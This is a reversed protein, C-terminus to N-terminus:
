RGRRVKNRNANYGALDQADNLTVGDGDFDIAANNEIGLYSRRFAVTDTGDVDGDGDADGFLRFFNDSFNNGFFYDAAMATSGATVKTADIQLRYNGDLLSDDRSGTGARQQVGAGAAFRVTFQTSSGNPTIVLNAVQM